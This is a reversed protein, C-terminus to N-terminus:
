FIVRYVTRVATKTQDHFIFVRACLTIRIADFSIAFSNFFYEAERAGVAYFLVYLKTVNMIIDRKGNPRIFAIRHIM